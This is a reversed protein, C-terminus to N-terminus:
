AMRRFRVTVTPRVVEVCPPCKETKESVWEANPRRWWYPAYYRSVGLHRSTTREIGCRRCRLFAIPDGTSEMSHSPGRRMEAERGGCRLRQVARKGPVHEAEGAREGRSDSPGQPAQSLACSFHPPGDRHVPPPLQPPERRSRRRGATPASCIAPSKPRSDM